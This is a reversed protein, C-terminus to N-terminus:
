FDLKEKIYRLSIEMSEKPSRNTRDHEVVYWEIDASKALEFISPFDIIGNGIEVFETKKFGEETGDKLHLFGLRDLNEKIFEVASM